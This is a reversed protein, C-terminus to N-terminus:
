RADGAIQIPYRSKLLDAHEALQDRALTANQTTMGLARLSADAVQDPKAGQVFDLISSWRTVDDKWSREIKAVESPPVTVARRNAEALAAERGAPDALTAGSAHESIWDRLADQPHGIEDAVDRAVRSRAESFPVMKRDVLEIVHYGYMTEVVPSIEGPQLASAANWFEDVWSGKRGPPLLGQRGKAGPEESLRAATEAFDAGNEVLQRAHEAKAKCDAREADTEWRECRFLIHRVTLEYEPNTLYRAELVDDGVGNSELLLDAALIDLKVSDEREQVWPAGLQESEGKAVALGFATLEALMERRGSTLGVLRSEPYAVEGVQLAPPAHSCATTLILAAASLPLKM